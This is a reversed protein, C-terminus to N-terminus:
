LAPKAPHLPDNIFIATDKYFCTRCVIDNGLYWHDYISMFRGCRCCRGQHRCSPAPPDPVLWNTHCRACARYQRYDTSTTPGKCAPCRHRSPAPPRSGAAVTGPSGPRTGHWGANEKRARRTTM